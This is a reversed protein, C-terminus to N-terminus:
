KRYFDKALIRNFYDHYKKYVVEESYNDIAWKRCVHPDISGINELAHVFEKFERCRFGTVGQVVTETFGGWDSTIAPTGSLYGEVVMNGLPEIYHTPGLIAQADRMLSKRQSANCLGLPVVHSPVSSYGLEELTGPGALLLTKNAAETAQIAIHIGKSETVRGFYLVYDKKNQNFEFEDPTFGNTIVADSWSPTMLMKHHGYYMHMTAYSVFVRYPAFVATHDYAIYPEVILLDSNANAAGQNEWGHFCMIMDGPKKRSAIEKAANKNYLEVNTNHDNYISRLCLVNECDVQSGVIGYHICNWGLKTMNEIFKVVAVAFADIRNDIHVPKEPNSLIHLTPM